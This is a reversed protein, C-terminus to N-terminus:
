YEGRLKEIERKVEEVKGFDADVGALKDLRPVVKMSGKLAKSFIPAVSVKAAESPTSDTGVVEDAGAEKILDLAKGLPLIHTVGVFIRRAGQKKLARVANATTKGTSIIDDVIIADRGKVNMKKEFTVIEGTHRDREKKFYDYGAKIAGAGNKVRAIAAEEDDPAVVLPDRLAKVAFYKALEGSATLNFAPIRYGKLVRENHVDVTYLAGAGLERLVEAVMISSIGEGNLYREDQRSYALYPAFVTISKAGLDKATHVMLFLELLHEDQPPYLSQVLVLDEGAVEEEFKFYFEGDPFRKTGTSVLPFNLTQSIKHALEVSSPGGVIKV